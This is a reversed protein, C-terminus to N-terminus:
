ILVSFLHTPFTLESSSNGKRDITSLYMWSSYPPLCGASGSHLNVAARSHGGSLALQEGKSNWSNPYIISRKVSYKYSYSDKRAVRHTMFPHSLVACFSVFTVMVLVFLCFSMEKAKSNALMADQFLCYNNTTRSIQTILLARTRQNVLSYM